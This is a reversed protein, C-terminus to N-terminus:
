PLNYSVFVSGQTENISKIGLVENYGFIKGIEEETFGLKSNEYVSIKEVKLKLNEIASIDSFNKTAKQGSLYFSFMAFMCLLLIGIVLITVPINAKKNM